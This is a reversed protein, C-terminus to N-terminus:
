SVDFYKDFNESFDCDVHIWRTSEVTLLHTYYTLKMFEYRSYLEAPGATAIVADAAYSITWM